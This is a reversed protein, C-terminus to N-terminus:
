FKYNYELIYADSERLNSRAAWNREWRLELEHQDAIEIRPGFWIKHTDHGSAGDLTRQVRLGTNLGIGNRQFRLAGDSYGYFYKESSSQSRGALGRFYLGWDGQLPVYKGVRMALKYLNSFSSVNSSVSKDREGNILLEVRHVPADKFNLGPALTISQAHSVGDSMKEYEYALGLGPRGSWFQSQAHANVACLGTLLIGVPLVFRKLPMSLAFCYMASLM